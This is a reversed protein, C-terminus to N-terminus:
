PAEKQLLNLKILIEAHEVYLPSGDPINGPLWVGHNIAEGVQHEIWKGVKPVFKVKHNTCFKHVKMSM